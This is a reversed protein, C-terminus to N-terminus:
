VKIGLVLMDDLQKNDGKWEDITNSVILKQEHAPLKNISLLLQRFRFGNFKQNEEGGFQDLYGDSFLYITMDNNLELIHNTYTFDDSEKRLWLSGGLSRLDAEIINIRDNDVVYMSMMAGSYELISEEKDIICIAIDMGDQSANDNSEQHLVDLIGKHLKELILSPKIIHKQNVIENLLMVGIMSMLAGPVGHGTCDAAVVVIKNNIKNIWYFDGSVIDKPSYYVFSNPLNCTFDEENVLIADQIRKAYNISDTINRNKRSIEEEANKIATIDTDVAIFKRLSGFDDYIPTLTTKIWIKSNQKTTALTNYYVSSKKQLCEDLLENINKNNSLDIINSSKSKVLIEDLSYGYIHSYGDNIWEIKGNKDFIIVANSTEKAVISLKELKLNALELKVSQDLIKSTQESLLKNAKRKNRYERFFLFSALVIFIFGAISFYTIIKQRKLELDQLKKENRLLSIEKEKQETEFQAQLEALKVSSQLKIISDKSSSYLKFYYLSNYIDGNIEYIEALAGYIVKLYDYSNLYKAVDVAKKYEIEAKKFDKEDKYTSAYNILSLAFGNMDNIDSKINLSKNFYERALINNGLDKYCLGINLTAQAISSLDKLGEAIKLSKTFFELARSLNKQQRFLEGINIYSSALGSSDALEEKINASKLYYDLTKVYNENLYYIVGISNYCKSMGIKNNAEEEINLAKLYYELANTYNSLGNYSAAINNYLIALESKDGLEEYFKLSNFYNELAQNFDAKNYFHFGIEKYSAAIGKKYKLQLALDLAQNAYAFSKEPYSSLNRESLSLFVNVRHTDQAQKELKVFLSDPSLGKKPFSLTSNVAILIIVFVINKSIM